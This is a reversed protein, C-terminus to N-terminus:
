GNPTYQAHTQATPEETLAEAIAQELTLAQGAAWAAAFTPPDLQARAAAVDREYAARDGPPLPLKLRDHMAAAASLLRVARLAALPHDEPSHVSAVTLGALGELSELIAANAGGQRLRLSEILLTHARAMNGQQQAVRGLLYLVLTRGPQDDLAIYLARSEELLGTALETDDQALAVRARTCLVTTLPRHGAERFRAIADDLLGAARAYEGQDYAARGLGHLAIAIGSSQGAARLVVLCEEFLAAAREHQGRRYVVDALEALNWGVSWAEGIRRFLPLSAEMLDQAQADDNGIYNESQFWLALAIWWPDDLRRAESLAADMLAIRREVEPDTWGLMILAHILSPFDGIERSIRIGESALIQAQEVHGLLNAFFAAAPLTRARTTPAVAEPAALFRQMWAYGERDHGRLHWFRHIATTLRLGDDYMSAESAWALGARINPHEDDLHLLWRLQETSHLHPEVTEALDRFFLLHRNRLAEAEDSAELRELAYERIAELMTFRPTGTLEHGGALQRRVLSKAVLAEIGDLVSLSIPLNPSQQPLTQKDAQRSTEWGGCVAEAMELTWGGVFIALRALLQQESASLLNYSWDITARLTQQRAPLDRPGGTLFTLLNGLRGLMAQPPLLKIRAAALEIALPLGGLRYCIDAVAPASENTLAFDHQVDHARAVFLEVAAYQALAAHPLPQKVDPLALPPVPLDREVSLHLLERSTVLITLRPCGALLDAVLTAAANVQEFNDLVLLQQRTRLHSILSKLLPQASSEQVGLAQAITPIVLAPDSIPALTVLCVGDAFDDLLEATAQLALRTKGIGGAGSLTILRYAPQQLLDALQALEAERGVLPTMPAPLNHTPPSPTEDQPATAAARIHEYLATTEASPEVGLEQHLIRRFRAYQELAASRQGGRWLVRMLQRNAEDGWPDIEVQRWAFRQAHQHAGRRDNYTILLTLTDLLQQRLRERILAAWEEFAASDGLLFHELFDGRYLAVASDRRQACARCTASYRHPHSACTKLLTTFSLLDLQYDAAPNLAITERTVLLFPPRGPVSDPIAEKLKALVHRLYTLATAAPLDPWLLEALLVRAHSRGAEVALYVLLARVKVSEFTTVPNGDLTVDFSGLLALTLRATTNM